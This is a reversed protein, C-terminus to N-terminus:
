KVLNGYPIDDGFTQFPGLPQKAMEHERVSPQGGHLTYVVRDDVILLLANFSWGTVQVQRKFGFADQWFNGVRDRRTERVNIWYGTCAKGATFCKRLGPDLQEASLHLPFRLAIDSFTLLQINPSTYPDIGRARLESVSANGRELALIAAEAEVFSRWPSSVEAKSEPLLAACGSALAASAVLCATLVRRLVM